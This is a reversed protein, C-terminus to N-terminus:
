KECESSSHGPVLHIEECPTDKNKVVAMKRTIELGERRRQALEVGALQQSVSLFFWKEIHRELYGLHDGRHAHFRNLDIVLGRRSYRFLKDADKVIRDSRSIARKRSDHGLIIQCIEDVKEPPYHLGELIKRATKAGETEHLRAAQPNSRNPGFATLQLHEPVAKWGVDHLLIAPVVVAEDGTATELLKIAYRLAIQTHILNRRTRLFPKARDLIKQYIPKM